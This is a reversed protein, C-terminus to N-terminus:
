GKKQEEEKLQKRHEKHIQAHEFPEVWQLNFSSNNNKTFDKHHVQSFPSPAPGLFACAVLEHVYRSIRRGGLCIKIKYYNKQLFPSMLQAVNYSYTKIRGLNSIYYVGNTGAIERWEEGPLDSILDLAWEKNFVLRFIKKKSIKKPEGAETLLIYEYGGSPNLWANKKESYVNASVKDIFYDHDFGHEIRVLEKM